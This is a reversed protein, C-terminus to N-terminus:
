QHGAGPRALVDPEQNEGCGQAAAGEVAPKGLQSRRGDLRTASLDVGGRHAVEIGRRVVLVDLTLLSERRAGLLEPPPQLGAV